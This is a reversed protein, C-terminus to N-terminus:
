IEKEKNKEKNKENINYIYVMYSFIIWTSILNIVSSTSLGLIIGILSNINYRKKSSLKYFLYHCSEFLKYFFHFVYVYYSLLMFNYSKKYISLYLLISTFICMSNLVFNIYNISNKISLLVVQDRLSVLSRYSYILSIIKVVLNLRFGFITKTIQEPIYYFMFKFDYKNEYDRMEEKEKMKKYEDYNLNLKDEKPDYKYLQNKTM